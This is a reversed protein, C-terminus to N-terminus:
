EDSVKNPDDTAFRNTWYDPGRHLHAVATILMLDKEHLYVVGYPFRNLLCRRTGAIFPPWADPLAHIRDIAAFLEALFGEGLGPATQNYYEVAEDLERQAAELFVVDM